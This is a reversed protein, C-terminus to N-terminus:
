TVRRYRVRLDEAWEAGDKAMEWRGDIGDGGAAFTGAFRQSFEPAKV